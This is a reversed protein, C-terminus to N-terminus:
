YAGNGFLVHPITRLIITLDLSLSWNEIYYIDLLCMEDFTLDSRGSIQPLGTIGQPASLRERQWAEYKEVESPLAPRPGVLSMEGRLVNIFQPLEDISTRRIFRGVRTRRPDNKIKFLPGSAENMDSVEALAEEAGQKMSRFKIVEFPKRHQGIRRQRFFVPGPSDLKIAAAVVLFLPWLVAFLVATLVVDMARKTLRASGPLTHEKVGILPIGGLDDVDVRSLSLQFIDPVVRPRVGLRECASVLGVIKRQYMWPLTVFVEDVRETKIISEVCDLGGLARFRGIDTAGKVPDDDVFGVVSYGLDPRAVMTRMVTRGVEGAGVILVRQVGVGRKRLRAEVQRRVARAAGLLLVILVGDYFFLLRSYALPRLGFTIAVVIVISILAANGVRVIESILSSGRRATYGGNAAFAALFIATLASFLSFYSSLPNYFGPEVSRFLEAEYRLYWALASALLILLADLAPSAWRLAHKM